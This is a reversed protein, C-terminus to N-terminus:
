QGLDQAPGGGRQCRDAARGPRPGARGAPQVEGPGEALALRGRGARGIRRGAGAETRWDVTHDLSGEPVPGRRRGGVYATSIHVYHIPAAGREARRDDVAQIRELLARVGLVNTDFAENIPPDFSVDGACHVVLDVDPLEPLATLDGELIELRELLADVGGAAEASESFIPKALLASIRDRGPQGAKPRVLVVPTIGPVDHLLRHLLAEGVFGTVGTILVRRGDLREALRM